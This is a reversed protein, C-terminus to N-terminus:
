KLKREVRELLRLVILGLVASFGALFYYGTGAAMGIGCVLWITAATTLGQVDKETRLITGAGLFGIGTIVGAAIRTIEGAFQPYDAVLRLALVMFVATGLSVLINTRFGAPKQAWERELGIVGGLLLALVLRMAMELDSM